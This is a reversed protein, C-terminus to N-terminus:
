LVVHLLTIFAFAITVATVSHAAATLAPDAVGFNALVRDVLGAITAEGVWGLALSALTIGLQTASIYRDLDRLADRVRRAGSDGEKALQEVRSRRVAVLGFEAAVFFANALVLGLVAALRIAIEAFSLHADAPSVVTM